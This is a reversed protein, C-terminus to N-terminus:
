PEVLAAAAARIDSARARRSALAAREALVETASVTAGAGSRYFRRRVSGVVVVEQGATIRTVSLPPDFWVVPASQKAGPEGTTVEWTLLRSGSALQRQRPESSLVGQLVVVNM